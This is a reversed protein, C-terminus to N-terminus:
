KQGFIIHNLFIKSKMLNAFIQVDKFQRFLQPKGEPFPLLGGSAAAAAAAAAGLAGPDPKAEAGGGLIALVLVIVAIVLCKMNHFVDRSPKHNNNARQRIVLEPCNTTTKVFSHPATTPLEDPQLRDGSGTTTEAGAQSGTNKPSIAAHSCSQIPNLNSQTAAPPRLSNFPKHNKGISSQRQAGSPSSVLRQRSRQNTSMTSM